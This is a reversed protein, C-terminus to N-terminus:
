GILRKRRILTRILIRWGIVTHHAVNGDFSARVGDNIDYGDATDAPLTSREACRQHEGAPLRVLGLMLEQVIM